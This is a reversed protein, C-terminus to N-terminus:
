GKAERGASRISSVWAYGFRGPMVDVELAVRRDVPPWGLGLTAVLGSRVALDVAESTRGPVAPLTTWTVYGGRGARTWLIQARPLSVTQPESRDLLINGERLLTHGSLLAAPMGILLTRGLLRAGRRDNRYWAWCAAFVAVSLPVGLWLSDSFARGPELLDPGKSSRVIGWWGLVALAALLATLGRSGQPPSRRSPSKAQQELARHLAEVAPAVLAVFETIPLRSDGRDRDILWRLRLGDMRLERLRYGRAEIGLVTSEIAEVVEDGFLGAAAEGECELIWRADFAPRGIGAERALGTAVLWRDLAGARRLTFQARFRLLTELRLGQRTSKHVYERPEYRRGEHTLYPMWRANGVWLPIWLLLPWIASVFVVLMLGFQITWM